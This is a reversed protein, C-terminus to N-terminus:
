GNSDCFVYIGFCVDGVVVGQVWGWLWVGGLSYGVWFGVRLVSDEGREVGLDWDVVKYCGKVHDDVWDGN